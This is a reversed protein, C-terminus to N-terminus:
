ATKSEYFRPLRLEFILAVTSALTAISWWLGFPNLLGDLDERMLPVLFILNFGASGLWFLVCYKLARLQRSRWRWGIWVFYGALLYSSSMWWRSVSETVMGLCSLVTFPILFVAWIFGLRFLWRAILAPIDRKNQM